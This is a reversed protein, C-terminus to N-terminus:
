VIYDDNDFHVTQLTVGCVECADRVIQERTAPYILKSESYNRDFKRMNDECTLDISVTENEPQEVVTVTCIRTKEIIGDDLQLGIYCVAEAGEFDYNSYQGEFNNISLTLVNIIASGIDFSSDGSVSDEFTMGNQWLDANTLNLVTGDTLTIDAYKLYHVDMGNKVKEKWRSSLNRM